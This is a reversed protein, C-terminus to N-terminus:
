VNDFCNTYRYTIFLIKCFASLGAAAATLHAESTGPLFFPLPAALVPVPTVIEAPTAGDRESGEKKDELHGYIREFFERPSSPRGPRAKTEMDAGSEGGCLCVFTLSVIYTGHPHSGTSAYGRRGVSAPWIAGRNM